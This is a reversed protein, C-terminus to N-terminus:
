YISFLLYKIILIRKLADARAAPVYFKHRDKFFFETSSLFVKDCYDNVTLKLIM